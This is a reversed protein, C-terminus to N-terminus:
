IFLNISLAVLESNVIWPCNALWDAPALIARISHIELIDAVFNYDM